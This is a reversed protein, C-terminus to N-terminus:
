WIFRGSVEHEIKESLFHGIKGNRIRRKKLKPDYRCRVQRQQGQIALVWLNLPNKILRFDKFISPSGREDIIEFGCHELMSRLVKKDFCNLHAIEFASHWEVNPVSVFVLSGPYLVRRLRKLFDLPEYIHELTHMVTVLNFNDNKDVESIDAIIKSEPVRRKCAAQHTPNPEIFTVEAGTELAVMQGMIGSGPGVDLYSQIGGILHPRLYDLTRRARNYEIRLKGETLGLDRYVSLNYGPGVYWNQISAADPRPNQYILGCDTCQVYEAEKVKAGFFVAWSCGCLPCEALTTNIAIDVQRPLLM